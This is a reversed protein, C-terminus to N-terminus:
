NTNFDVPFAFRLGLKNSSSGKAKFVDRFDYYLEANVVSKKDKVNKFSFVIGCGANYVPVSGETFRVGPNFHLGLPYRSFVFYYIHGDILLENIDERYNGTYVTYKSSITRKNETTDYDVTETIESSSLEGLNNRYKYTIGATVYFTEFNRDSWKYYSYQLKLQHSLFSEDHVQDAFDLEPDFLIFDDNRLQYEASLWGFQFGSINLNSKDAEKLAKARKNLLEGFQKNKWSDDEMEKRQRKVSKLKLKLLGAKYNLSDQEERGSAQTLKQEYMKIETELKNKEADLKKLERPINAYTIKLSDKSFTEMIETRKKNIDRLKKSSYTLSQKQRLLFHYGAGFSVNTNLSSNKFVPLFGDTVGGKIRTSLIHGKKFPFTPAFTASSENIDVSAYSGFSNNSQGTILNRFQLNLVRNFEEETLGKNNQNSVSDSQAMVPIILVGPILMVICFIYKM